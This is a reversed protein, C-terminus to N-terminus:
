PLLIWVAFACLVFCAGCMVANFWICDSSYVDTRTGERVHRVAARSVGLFFCGLIFWLEAPLLVAAIGDMREAIVAVTTVVAFLVLSAVAHGFHKDNRFRIGTIKEILRRM